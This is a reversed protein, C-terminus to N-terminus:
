PTKPDNEIVTGDTAPSVDEPANTPAPSLDSASTADLAEKFTQYEELNSVLTAVFVDATTNATGLMVIQDRYAKISAEVNENRDLIAKNRAAAANIDIRDQSVKRREEELNM